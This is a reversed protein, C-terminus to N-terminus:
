HQSKDKSVKNRFLIPSKKLYTLADHKSYDSSM